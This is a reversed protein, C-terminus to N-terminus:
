DKYDYELEIYGKQMLNNLLTPITVNTWDQESGRYCITLPGREKGNPYPDLGNPFLDLFDYMMKKMSKPLVLKKLGCCGFFAHIGAERIGESVIINKIPYMREFTKDYANPTFDEGTCFFNNWIGTIPMGAVMSPLVVTELSPGTYGPKNRFDYGGGNRNGGLYIDYIRDDTFPMFCRIGLSLLEDESPNWVPLLQGACATGHEIDSGSIYGCDMCRLVYSAGCKDCTIINEPLDAGCRICKM